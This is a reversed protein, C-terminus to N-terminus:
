NLGVHVRVTTGESRRHVRVLDCVQHVVFLGHGVDAPGPGRRGVLPDDIRGGDQVQMVVQDHETWISLLGRGGAHVLTNITLEQAVLRLDAARTDAMRAREAHDHVFRRASSPATSPSIVMVDAHAPPPPLPRDFTAAVARSDTYGPSAWRDPGSALIPHTRTADILVSRDLHTIDYPCLIYAPASGLAVNILAEHEACAPYEATSRGAWIPEGIIRVRRGAHERVFSSLVTDIIRGPNRGAISMDATRVKPEEEPTLASRILGLGPQPVAVLVPEDNALGTRIFDLLGARYSSADTYFFAEHVLGGLDEPTAAGDADESTTASV